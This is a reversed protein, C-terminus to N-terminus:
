QGTAGAEARAAAFPEEAAAVPEELIGEDITNVGFNFRLPSDEPLQGTMGGTSGGGCIANGLMYARRRDMDANGLTNDAGLLRALHDPNLPENPDEPDKEVFQLMYERWALSLRGKMVAMVALRANEEAEEANAEIRDRKEIVLDIIKKTM